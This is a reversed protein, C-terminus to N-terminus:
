QLPVWEYPFLKGAAVPDLKVGATEAAYALVPDKGEALDAATPLMVKDPVVGVKELSKGDGMILNADTISFGYAFQTDTGQVAGYRKSEMVAGSSRDGIVTGRKELQVVRALLEAASASDSDILVILQGAFPSPAHKALVPKTSNKGQRDAIKIDHDILSGAVYGLSDTYGGHNGRLDLILTKHRRIKGFVSWVQDLDLDFRQLKWIALDGSEELRARHVHDLDEEHRIEGGLDWGHTYDQLPAGKVITTNVVVTRLEGSPSKLQLQTATQPALSHLSYNLDVFDTRNVNFGNLTVVQDGIKLKAEADTHPRIQAIFCSNGILKLEYGYEYTDIREPAVFFTHSDHLGSLFAAVLRMGEGLNHINDVRARFQEYRADINVGQFNPDFYHRRINDNAEKLIEAVQGKVMKDVAPPQNQAIAAASFTCLFAAALGAALSRVKM